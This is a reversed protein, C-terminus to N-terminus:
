IKVKADVLTQADAQTSVGRTCMNCCSQPGQQDDFWKDIIVSNSHLNLRKYQSFYDQWDTDKDLGLASGNVLLGAVAPCKYLNGDYMNVFSRAVCTNWSSAFDNSFYSHSPKSNTGTGKYFPWWVEEKYSETLQISNGQDDIWGRDEGHGNQVPGNENVWPKFDGSELALNIFNWVVDSYNALHQSIRYSVNYEKILDLHQKDLRLGNTQITLNTYPWYKRCGALWQELDPNVLPEGGFMNTYAPEIYQSWFALHEKTYHTIGKVLKSDSFTICGSCSLNCTKAIFIDLNSIKNKM